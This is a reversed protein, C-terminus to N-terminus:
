RQHVLVADLRRSARITGLAPFNGSRRGRELWRVIDHHGRRGVMLLALSFDHPPGAEDVRRAWRSISSPIEPEKPFLGGGRMVAIWVHRGRPIGALRGRV